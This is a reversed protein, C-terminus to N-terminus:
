EGAVPVPTILVIRRSEAPASKGSLRSPIKSKKPPADGEDSFQADSWLVLTEGDDLAATLEVTTRLIRPVQVAKSGGDPAKVKVDSVDQFRIRAALAVRGQEDFAPRIRLEAGTAITRVSAEAADLGPPAVVFPRHSQDSLIVEEGSRVTIKPCYAPSSHRDRQAQRVFRMLEERSLTLVHYVPRSEVVSRASVM